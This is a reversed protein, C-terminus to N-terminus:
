ALVPQEPAQPSRTRLYADQLMYMRYANRYGGNVFFEHILLGEEIFGVRSYIHVAAANEADVVLYLKYTNLVCFAYDIALRTAKSAIGKGQWEADIAIQFEARRHLGNIEVLEVLGASEGNVDIIFRRETQDHIHKRYLEELEDYTEYAEEFWYRMISDNNNLKHVFRLDGRELTRLRINLDDTTM